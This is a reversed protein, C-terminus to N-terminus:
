ECSRDEGSSVIDPPPHALSNKAMKREEPNFNPDSKMINHQKTWKQRPICARRSPTWHLACKLRVLSLTAVGVPKTLTHRGLVAALNKGTATRAPPLLERDTVFAPLHFAFAREAAMLTEVTNEGPSVPRAPSEKLAHVQQINRLQRDKTGPIRNGVLPVMGNAAVSEPPQHTLGEPKFALRQPGSHLVVPNRSVEDEHKSGLTVRMDFPEGELGDTGLDGSEAPPDPFPDFLVIARLSTTPSTRSYWIRM